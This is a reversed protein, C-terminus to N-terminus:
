AATRRPRIASRHLAWGVAVAAVGAVAVAGAIKTARTMGDPETPSAEPDEEGTVPGPEPEPEPTGPTPAAALGWGTGSSEAVGLIMGSSQAEAQEKNKRWSESQALGYEACYYERFATRLGARIRNRDRSRAALLARVFHEPAEYGATAGGREGQLLPLYRMFYELTETRNKPWLAWTDIDPTLPSGLGIPGFEAGNFLLPSRASPKLPLRSNAWKDYIAEVRDVEEVAADALAKAPDLAQPHFLGDYTAKIVRARHQLDARMESEAKTDWGVPRGGTNGVFVAAGNTSTLAMNTRLSVVLPDDPDGAVPPLEVAHSSANGHPVVVELTESFM